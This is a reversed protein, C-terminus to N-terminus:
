SGSSRSISRGTSGFGSRSTTTSTSTTRPASPSSRFATSPTSWSTRRRDSSYSSYSGSGWRWNGWSRRRCPETQPVPAAPQAAAGPAAAPAPAATAQPQCEARPPMLYAGAATTATVGMLVLAVQGSRKM